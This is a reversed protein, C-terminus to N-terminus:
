DQGNKEYAVPRVITAARIIQATRVITAARVIQATRVIKAARVIPAARVIQTTRVIQATECVILSFDGNGCWCITVGSAWRMHVTGLLHKYYLM